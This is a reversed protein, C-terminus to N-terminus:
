ARRPGWRARLLAVDASYDLRHAMYARDFPTQAHLCSMSADFVCVLVGLARTFFDAHDIRKLSPDWGVLRLRETRAVYFNMVKDCVLLGDIASGVPVLPRASTPFIQGLPPGRRRLLPLDLLEGGVLDVRPSRELDRVGIRLDTRSTFVFDDDVVLVFPTRVRDLAAQRGASVGSDFPLTVTEVSPLRSPSRSDDAVVIPLTPYRARISRVLRELTAPREFTKVIVTLKEDLSRDEDARPLMGAAFLQTAVVADYAPAAIARLRGTASRRLAQRLARPSSM